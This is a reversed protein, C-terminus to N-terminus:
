EALYAAPDGFFLGTDATIWLSNPQNANARILRITQANRLESAIGITRPASHDLPFWRIEADAAAVIVAPEVALLALKHFREPAVQELHGDATQWYLGANTSIWLGNQAQVVSSIWAVDLVFPQQWGATSSWTWLGDERGLLLQDQGWTIFYTETGPGGQVLHWSAGFDHSLYLEECYDSGVTIYITRQTSVAIDCIAGSFAFHRWHVGSDDTGWLTDDEAVAYVQGPVFPDAALPGVGAVSLQTYDWTMGQDRSIAVATPAGATFSAYMVGAADWIVDQAGGALADVHRWAIDPDAFLGIRGIWMIGFAVLVPLLVIAIRTGWARWRGIRERQRSAAVFAQEQENLRDANEQAWEQVLRLRQGRFLYSPDQQNAQWQDLAGAVQRQLRIGEMDESIWGQLRPWQRILAEHAVEIENQGTIANYDSVILRADALWAILKTFPEPDVAVPLLEAFRVRQRTNRREQGPLAEQDVSTLRVFIMRLWAQQVPPLQDYIADASHAIAQQIGGMGRYEAAVLWRGYRRQWLERLGHQLLPMAGPEGAVDDLITNALDAEFRLGVAGAQQEMAARLEGTTMPGILLQQALMWDRLRPYSACDGWFDARMTLVVTLPSPPQGATLGDSPAVLALIQQFFARRQAEDNCLTFSEEFQDIVLLAAHATPQAVLVACAAALATVPDAGPTIVQVVLTPTQKQLAPIVGALVLSSKGSGSPGLLALFPTQALRMVIQAVLAERGFFFAQDAVGFAVLGRFPCRADYAPPPDGQSLAKFSLDTAKATITAVEDLAAQRELQAAHDLSAVDLQLTRRLIVAAQTFTPELTPARAALLPGLLDLGYALETATLERAVARSFLPQDGLRSYIAPVTADSREAVAIAAEVLARDVEGTAQLQTYFSSTLLQVTPLSVKETMAIVAPMGLDRVLRQALGGLAGEAAPAASECTALFALHPLGRRGRLRGLQDLLRTGTIRDLQNADDALFLSTEGSKHDYAGHCVVHVLTYYTDTLRQCLATLSAPGVAQPVPGTSGSALLDFPIAGLATQVQAAAAAADFPQLGYNALGNPSAIVVLARLDRRGIPPYRRDTLSPLYLSFLTRQNLTLFDWHTESGQIFPACLREWRLQRLDDAEVFLLLRIGDASEALAGAFADRIQGQFIAQGLATGYARPTLQALLVAQSLTLLGESRTPLLGPQLQEAVLPWREETRRQITIELTLM